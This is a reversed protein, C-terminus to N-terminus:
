EGSTPVEEPIDRLREAADHQLKQAEAPSFEAGCTECRYSSAREEHGMDEINDWRATLTAHSCPPAEEVVTDQNRKRSFLGV